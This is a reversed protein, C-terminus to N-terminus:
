KLKVTWSSHSASHETSLLAPSTAAHGPWIDVWFHPFYFWVTQFEKCPSFKLTESKGELAAVSTLGFGQFDPCKTTTDPTVLTDNKTLDWPMNLDVSTVSSFSEATENELSWLCFELFVSLPVSVECFGQIGFYRLKSLIWLSWQTWGKGVRYAFEVKSCGRM